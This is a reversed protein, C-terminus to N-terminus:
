NVMESFTISFSWFLFTANFSNGNRDTNEHLIGHWLSHNARIDYKFEIPLEIPNASKEYASYIQSDDSRWLLEDDKNSDNKHM